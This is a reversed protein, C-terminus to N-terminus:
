HVQYKNPSSYVKHLEENRMKKIEKLSRKMFLSKRFLGHCYQDNVNRTWYENHWLFLDQGSYLVNKSVYEL